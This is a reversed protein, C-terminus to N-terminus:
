FSPAHMGRLCSAPRPAPTQHSATKLATLVNRASPLRLRMNVMGFWDDAAFAYHLEVRFAMFSDLRKVAKDIDHFHQHLGRWEIPQNAHLCSREAQAARTWLPSCDGYKTWEIGCTELTPADAM